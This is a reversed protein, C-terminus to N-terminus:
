ADRMTVAKPIEGGQRKGTPILRAGQIFLSRMRDWDRKKGSPGSIVDYLAAVISDMSLVDTATQVEQKAQKDAGASATLVSALVLASAALALCQLGQLHNNM